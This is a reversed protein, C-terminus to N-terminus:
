HRIKPVQQVPSLPLELEPQEPEYVELQEALQLDLKNDVVLTDAAVSADAAQLLSNNDAELVAM